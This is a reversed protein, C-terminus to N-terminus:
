ILIATLLSSVFFAVALVTTIWNLTEETGKKGKFATESKGGITGSLGESKTTQLLVAVILSISTTFQVGLLAVEM